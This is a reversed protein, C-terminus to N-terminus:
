GDPLYVCPSACHLFYVSSCAIGIASGALIDSFHHRNDLTRSIAVWYALLLPSICIILKSFSRRGHLIRLKGALFLSLIAMGFFAASSHGSPFSKRGEALIHADPNQCEGNAGLSTCRSLYDPRFRGALVKGVEVFMFQVSGGQVVTSAAAHLELFSRKQYSHLVGLLPLPAAIMMACALVSVTDQKFEGALPANFKQLAALDAPQGPLRANPIPRLPAELASSVLVVAVVLALPLLYELVLSQNWFACWSAGNGSTPLRMITQKFKSSATFKEVFVLFLSVQNM